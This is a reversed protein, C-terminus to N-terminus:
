VRSAAMSSSISVASARQSSSESFQRRDPLPRYRQEAQCDPRVCDPQPVVRRRITPADITGQNGCQWRDIRRHLGAMRPPPPARGPLGGSSKKGASSAGQGLGHQCVQMRGGKRGCSWNSLFPKTTVRDMPSTLGCRETQAGCGGRRRGSSAPPESHARCLRRGVARDIIAVGNATRHRTRERWATGALHGRCILFNNKM